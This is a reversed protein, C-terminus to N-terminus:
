KPLDWLRFLAGLFLVAVAFLLAANLLVGVKALTRKRDKRSLGGLGLGLGVLNPVAAVGLCPVSMAAVPFGGGRATMGPSSHNLLIALFMLLQPVGGVLGILFSAVGLGSNLASPLKRSCGPCTAPGPVATEITGSCDPCRLHSM